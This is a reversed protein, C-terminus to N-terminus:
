ESVEKKENLGVVAEALAKAPTHFDDYAPAHGLLQEPLDKSIGSTKLRAICTHRMPRTSHGMTDVELGAMLCHVEEDTFADAPLDHNRNNFMNM